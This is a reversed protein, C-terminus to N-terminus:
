QTRAALRVPLGPKLVPKQLSLVRVTASREAVRTVLLRAIPQAPRRGDSGGAPLHAVLEDGVSLGSTIGLSVFGLEETGYVPQRVLFEVITGQPGDSVPTSVGAPEPFSDMPLALNGAAMPGFQRTVSVLMSRTYTSDVRVVGTPEIIRGYGAVSRGVRVVLLLDGPNPRTRGEYRLYLRDFRHFTGALQRRENGAENASLLSGCVPLGDPDALWPSAHFAQPEVRRVTRAAGAIFTTAMTEPPAYFRTRKLDPSNADARKVTRQPQTATQQQAQAPAVCVVGLLVAFAHRGRM